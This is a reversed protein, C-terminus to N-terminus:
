GLRLELLDRVDSAHVAFNTGPPPYWDKRLQRQMDPPLEASPLVVHGVYVLRGDREEVRDVLLPLDGHAETETNRVIVIITKGVIAARDALIPAARHLHVKPNSNEVLAYTTAGGEAAFASSPHGFMVSVAIAGLVITRAVGQGEVDAEPVLARMADADAIFLEWRGEREMASGVVKGDRLLERGNMSWAPPLPLVVNMM